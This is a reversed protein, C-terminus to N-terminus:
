RFAIRCAAQKQFYSAVAAQPRAGQSTPAEGQSNLMRYVGPKHPLRFHNEAPNFAASSDAMWGDTSRSPVPPADLPAPKQVRSGHQQAFFWSIEAVLLLDARFLLGVRPHVM